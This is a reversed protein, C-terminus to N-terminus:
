VDILRKGVEVVKTSLHDRFMSIGAEAYSLKMLFGPIHSYFFPTYIKRLLINMWVILHPCKWLFVPDFRLRIISITPMQNESLFCHMKLRYKNQFFIFNLSKQRRLFTMSSQLYEFYSDAPFFKALDKAIWHTLGILFIIFKLLINFIIQKFLNHHIGYFKIYIKLLGSHYNCHFYTYQM